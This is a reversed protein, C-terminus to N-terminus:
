LPHLSYNKGGGEKKSTQNSNAATGEEKPEPKCFQYGPDAEDLMDKSLITDMATM